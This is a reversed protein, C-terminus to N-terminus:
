YRLLYYRSANVDSEIEAREDNRAAGEGRPRARRAAASERDRARDERGAHELVAPPLIGRRLVHVQDPVGHQGRLQVPPAAPQGARVRAAFSRRPTFLEALVVPLVSIEMTACTMMARHMNEQAYLFFTGGGVRRWLGTHGFHKNLITGAQYAACTALPFLVSPIPRGPLFILAYASLQFGNSDVIPDIVAKFGALTYSPPRKMSYAIRYLFGLLASVLAARFSFLGLAARADRLGPIPLTALACAFANVCVSLTLVLFVCTRADM